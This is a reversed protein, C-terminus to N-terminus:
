TDLGVSAGMGAWVVALRGKWGGGGGFIWFVVCGRHGFYISFGLCGRGNQTQVQRELDQWRITLRACDVM